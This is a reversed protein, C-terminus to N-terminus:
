VKYIRTASCSWMRRGSHVDSRGKGLAIGEKQAVSGRMRLIYNLSCQEDCREYRGSRM